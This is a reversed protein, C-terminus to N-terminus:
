DSFKNPVFWRLKYFRADKLEGIPTFDKNYICAADSWYHKRPKQVLIAGNSSLQSISKLHNNVNTEVSAFTKNNTDFLWVSNNGTIMLIDSNPVPYLDHGSLKITPVKATYVKKLEPAYKNFNYEYAVLSDYGLAWLLKKQSDWVVGHASKLSYYKEKVQKPSEFKEPVSLLIINRKGYSSAVVANGDPLLAVSHPNVDRWTENPRMVSTYFVVKGSPYNILAVGGQSACMFIQSANNVPKCESMSEFSKAYEPLIEKNDKSSWFFLQNEKKNWDSNAKFIVISSPNQNACLIKANEPILPLDTSSIATRFEQSCKSLASQQETSTCACLLLLSVLFLSRM